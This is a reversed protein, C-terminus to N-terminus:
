MVAELFLCSFSIHNRNTLIWTNLTIWQQLSHSISTYSQGNGWSAASASCKSSLFSIPQIPAKTDLAQIWSLITYYQRPKPLCHNLSTADPASLCRSTVKLNYTISLEDRTETSKLSANLWAWMKKKWKRYNYYKVELNEKRDWNLCSVRYLM